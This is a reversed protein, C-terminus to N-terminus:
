FVKSFALGILFGLLFGAWPYWSSPYPVLPFPFGSSPFSALLLSIRAMDKGQWLGYKPLGRGAPGGSGRIGGAM